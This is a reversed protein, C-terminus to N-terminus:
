MLGDVSCPLGSVKLIADGMFQYGSGDQAHFNVPSTAFGLFLSYCNNPNSINFAPHSLLSRVSAVNGPANSSSQACLCPMFM